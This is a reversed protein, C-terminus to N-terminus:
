SLNPLVFWFFIGVVILIVGIIKSEKEEKLLLWVGVAPMAIMALICMVLCGAGFDDDNRGRNSM